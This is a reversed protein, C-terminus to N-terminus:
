RTPPGQEQYAGQLRVIVAPTIDLAPDAAIIGQASVDFIMSYGAEERIQQIVENIRDMVPQLLEARRRGAQQDLEAVRQQYRDQHLRIEEERNAKAEASLMAQQQMYQDIMQQGETGLQQIEAQYRAVDEEFQQLAAQAAPDQELVAQSNIYGLKVETQAEAASVSVLALLVPLIVKIGRM